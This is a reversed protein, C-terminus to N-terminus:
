AFAETHHGMWWEGDMRGFWCQSSLLVALLAPTRSHILAGGSWGFTCRRRSLPEVLQPELRGGLAAAGNVYADHFLADLVEGAAGRKAAVQVVQSFTSDLYYVYWGIVQGSDDRVLSRVLTGRSKVAPMERFLWELFAEDYDPHCRLRQTVQPMSDLLARPALPEARTAPAAPRLRRAASSLALSDLPRWLPRLRRALLPRQLRGLAYDAAFRLPRLIRTWSITKLHSTEGGCVEWMGRVTENAGDTLTADQAGWLHTRFLMAGVARSRAEPDVVLQGGYAVRIARGDYRLRRVHSGLFGILRGGDDQYVLSPIEADAWPCEFFTREFYDALRPPPARTGSRAVLEYLAAVAPLDDKQCPRIDRARQQVSATQLPRESHLFM